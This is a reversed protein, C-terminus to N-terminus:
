PGSRRLALINQYEFQENFWHSPAHLMTMGHPLLRHLLYRDGLETFFDQVFVRGLVNLKTVEFQIANVAGACIMRRAGRLVQLEFGEVDIKLLDIREIGHERCYDDITLVPVRVSRVKGGHVQDIAGAMLSAHQSGPQDAYDHLELQGPREGVAAANFKVGPLRQAARQALTVQPEFAHVCAQADSELVTKSWGGENAGVDFVVPRAVGRLAHAIAWREGSIRDSRYNLLGLARGSFYFVAKHLRALSQWGFIYAYLDGLKEQM